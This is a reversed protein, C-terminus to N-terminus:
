VESTGVFAVCATERRMLVGEASGLAGLIARSHVWGVWTTGHLVGLADLNNFFREM